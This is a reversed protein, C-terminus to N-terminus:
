GQQLLERYLAVHGAVMAAPSFREAARRRAAEGYGRRREDDDLLMRTLALLRNREGVPFLEGTEGPVILDTVGPIETGIVPVGAAMAELVVNPQGEYESGLWLLDLHAMIRPVDGRHGLFHVKDLIQTQRAFRELRWRQPGDGVILVHVDDRVCKVLDATWILDKVRKQPWLRGVVGVLRADAPLELEDLLEARTGTMAPAPEVANPIIAFKEGPIGREAYFAQVGASNTV